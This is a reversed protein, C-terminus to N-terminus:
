TSQRGEDETEFLAVAVQCARIDAVFVGDDAGHEDALHSCVIAADAGADLLTQFLDIGLVAAVEVLDVGDLEGAEGAHVLHGIDHGTQAGIRGCLEAAELNCGHGVIRLGLLGAKGLSIDEGVDKFVARFDHDTRGACLGLDLSVVGGEAFVEIGCLSLLISEGLGDLGDEGSTRFHVDDDACQGNQDASIGPCLDAGAAYLLTFYFLSIFIGEQLIGRCPPM